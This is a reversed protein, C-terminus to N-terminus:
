ECQATRAFGSLQYDIVRHKIVVM